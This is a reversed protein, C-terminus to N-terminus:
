KATFGADVLLPAGTVYLSADSALYMIAETVEIAEVLPAGEDILNWCGTAYVIREGHGEPVADTAMLEVLPTNLATPCVYNVRIKQSALEIAMSKCLGAVGHKAAVYHSSGPVGTFSHVSGTAILSGGHGQSVMHRGAHKLTLFVGKLNIDVLVDWVEEPMDITDVISAIGANAIAVDIKGLATAAGDVFAKVEAESRVDCIATHVNAGMARCQEAVADLKEQTGLAYPITPLKGDALDCIAVDAGAEAFRLAHLKGQGHAAGTILVSTGSFDYSVQRPRRVKM